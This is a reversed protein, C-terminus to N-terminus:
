RATKCSYYPFQQNIRILQTEKVKFSGILLGNRTIKENKRMKINGPRM